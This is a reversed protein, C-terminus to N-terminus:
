RRRKKGRELKDILKEARVEVPHAIEYSQQGRVFHAIAAALVLDDHAGSAAEARMDENRIFTLMERLLEADTIMDSTQDMVTRLNALILPRTRLDTRWGWKKVDLERRMDDPKERIFLKPYGWEELKRQPYTSYNIEVALLATNYTMGLCYMQRAYEDQSEISM